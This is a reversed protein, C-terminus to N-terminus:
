WAVANGRRMLSGGVAIAYLMPGVWADAPCCPHTKPLFLTRPAMLRCPTHAAAVALPLRVADYDDTDRRM